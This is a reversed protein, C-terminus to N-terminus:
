GYLEILEARRKELRSQIVAEAATSWQQAQPNAQRLLGHTPAMLEKAKSLAGEKNLVGLTVEVNISDGDPQYFRLGDLTAGNPFVGFLEESGSVSFGVTINYYTKEGGWMNEASSGVSRVEENHDIVKPEAISAQELLVAKKTANVYQEFSREDKAQQITIAAVHDNLDNMREKFLDDIPKLQNVSLYNSM